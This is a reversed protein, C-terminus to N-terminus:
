KRVRAMEADRRDWKECAVQAAILALDPKGLAQDIDTAELLSLPEGDRFARMGSRSWGLERRLWGWDRGQERLCKEVIQVPSAPRILTHRGTM